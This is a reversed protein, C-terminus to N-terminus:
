CYEELEDIESELDEIKDELDKINGKIEEIEKKKKNIEEESDIIEIEVNYHLDLVDIKLLEDNDCRCYNIMSETRYYKKGNYKIMSPVGTHIDKTVAEVIERLKITAM